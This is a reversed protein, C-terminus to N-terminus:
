QHMATAARFRAAAEGRQRCGLKRLVNSVHKEVTRTSLSLEVAIQRDSRGTALRALIEAERHTLEAVAALHGSDAPYGALEALRRMAVAAVRRSMALHGEAVGKVSRVLADPDMEKSLYGWAGLAMAEVVDSDNPRGTLMVVRVDAGQIRLIRLLELGSMGTLEVGLLM